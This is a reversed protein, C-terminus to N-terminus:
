QNIQLEIKEALANLRQKLPADSQKMDTIRAAPNAPFTVLSVEHLVLDSLLSGGKLPTSQRVEYGISLGDLVGEKMLLFAERGKELALFLQGEVYLGHDHEEMKEWRGIPQAPDHQWLMKPMPGERIAAEFAGKEVWDNHLEQVNFVSAYGSFWGSKSHSKLTM